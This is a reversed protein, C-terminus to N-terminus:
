TIPLINRWDSFSEVVFQILTPVDASTLKALQAPSLPRALWETLCSHGVMDLSIM